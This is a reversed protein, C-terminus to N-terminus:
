TQGFMDINEQVKNSRLEAEQALRGFTARSYYCSVGSLFNNTAHKCILTFLCYAHFCTPAFRAFTRACACIGDFSACLYVYLRERERVCVSM